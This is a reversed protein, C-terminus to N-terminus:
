THSWGQATVPNVGSQKEINYMHWWIQTSIATQLEELPASSRLPVATLPVNVERCVALYTCHGVCQQCLDSKDIGGGGLNHNM